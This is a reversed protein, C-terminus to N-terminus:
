QIGNISVLNSRNVLLNEKPLIEKEIEKNLHDNLTLNDQNQIIETQNIGNQSHQESDSINNDKNNDIGNNKINTLNVLKNTIDIADNLNHKNDSNIKISTKGNNKHIDEDDFNINLDFEDDFIFNDKNM